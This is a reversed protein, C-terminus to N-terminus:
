CVGVNLEAVTIAVIAVDDGDDIAEAPADGGSPVLWSRRTSSRDRWPDTVSEMGERLERLKAAWADDPQGARLM